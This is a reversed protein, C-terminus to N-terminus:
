FDEDADVPIARHGLGIVIDELRFIGINLFICVSLHERYRAIGIKGGVNFGAAKDMVQAVAERTAGTVAGEYVHTDTILKNRKSAVLTREMIKTISNIIDGGIDVAATRIGSKKYNEKLEMEEERTSMALMIAAKAIDKSKYDM